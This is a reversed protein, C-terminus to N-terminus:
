RADTGGSAFGEFPRIDRRPEPLGARRRSRESHLDDRDEAMFRAELAALEPSVSEGSRAVGETSKM